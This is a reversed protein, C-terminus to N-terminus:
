SNNDPKPGPPLNDEYRVGKYAGDVVGFVYSGRQNPFMGAIEWGMENLRAKKENETM